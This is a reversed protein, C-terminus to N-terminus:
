SKMNRCLAPIIRPKAIPKNEVPQCAAAKVETEEAELPKDIEYEADDHQAYM